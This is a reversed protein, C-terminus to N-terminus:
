ANARKRAMWVFGLLSSSFLLLSPPEPVEGEHVTIQESTLGAQKYRSDPCGKVDAICSQTFLAKVSGEGPGTFLDGVIANWSFTYTGVPVPVGGGNLYSSCIFGASSGNCENASLGGIMTSYGGPQTVLTASQIDGGPKIAVANLFDGQGNYGSTDITLTFLYNDGGLFDYTLTYINGFCTDEPDDFGTCTPGIADARASAVGMSLLMGFALIVLKGPRKM